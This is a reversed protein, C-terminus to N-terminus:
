ISFVLPIGTIQWNCEQLILSERSKIQFLLNWIRFSFFILYFSYYKSVQAGYEDCIFLGDKIKVVGVLNDEELDDNNGIQAGM